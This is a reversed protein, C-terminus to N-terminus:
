LLSRRLSPRITQCRSQGTLGRTSTGPTCPRCSTAGTTAIFTNVPCPTCTRSGERSAFYGVKCATPTKTGLLPCQSGKPCPSCTSARTLSTYFGAKSCSPGPPPPPAHHAFPAQARSAHVPYCAGMWQHPVLLCRVLPQLHQQGLCLLIWRQLLPLNLRRRCLLHRRPQLFPPFSLPHDCAPRGPHKGPQRPTLVDGRMGQLAAHEGPRAPRPASPTPTSAPRASTAGTQAGRM